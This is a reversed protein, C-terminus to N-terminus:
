ASKGSPCQKDANPRLLPFDVFVWVEGLFGASHDTALMGSERIGTVESDGSCGSLRPPRPTPPVV